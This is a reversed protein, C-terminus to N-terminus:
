RYYRLNALKTDGVVFEMERVWCEQATWDYDVNAPRPYKDSERRGYYIARNVVLADKWRQTDRRHQPETEHSHDQHISELDPVWNAPTGERVVRDRFDDDEGAVGNLYVFDVGGVKGCVKRPLFSCYWYLETPGWKQLYKWNVAELLKSWGAERYDGLNGIITNTEPTGLICPSFAFINHKSALSHGEEFNRPGHIIEPHCLCITEGRAMAIGVNISISPTHYWDEPDGPKWNPNRRRFVPHRTHDIAVHRFNLRGSIIPLYIPMLDQTSMDDVLIVEFEEPPMTQWLYSWLARGLLDRRNHISLIASVKIM